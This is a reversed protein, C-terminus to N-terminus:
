RDFRARKALTDILQEVLDVHQETGHRRDGCRWLDIVLRDDRDERVVMAVDDAQRTEGAEPIQGPCGRDRQWPAEIAVPQREGDLEHGADPRIFREERKSRSELDLRRIAPPVWWEVSTPRPSSVSPPWGRLLNLEFGIDARSPERAAPPDAHAAD